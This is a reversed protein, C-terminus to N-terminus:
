AALVARWVAPNATHRADPLQRLLSHDVPRDARVQGLVYRREIEASHDPSRLLGELLAPDAPRFYTSYSTRVHVYEALQQWAWGLADGQRARALDARGMPMFLPLDVGKTPWSRLLQVAAQAAMAPQGLAADLHASLLATALRLGPEQTACDMDSAADAPLLARASRAHALRLTAGGEALQAAAAHALALRYRGAPGDASPMALGEAFPLRALADLAHWAAEDTSAAPGEPRDDALLGRAALKHRRDPKCAFLNLMRDRPTGADFPALLALEPLHRFLDYGRRTFEGILSENWQLGHQVEFMVLPSQEAFFREGGALVAAEEGEVDLKVFAIDPRPSIRALVEDLTDLRVTEGIGGSGHLSNLESEGQTDFVAERALDSLGLALVDVRREFGNAQVSRELRGRPEATPEFAWVHGRPLAAALQITYVGHNAGIDLAQMDEDLLSSVFAHESEFWREQELLVFTTLSSLRSPVYLVLGDCTNLSWSSPPPPASPVHPM